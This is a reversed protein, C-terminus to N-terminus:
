QHCVVEGDDRLRAAISRNHVGPSDDLDSRRVREGVLRAVRVRPEQEAGGGIELRAVVDDRDGTHWWTQIRRDGTAGELRATVARERRAGRAIRLQHGDAVLMGSGAVQRGEDG